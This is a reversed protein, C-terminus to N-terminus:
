ELADRAVSEAEATRGLKVLLRALDAYPWRRSPALAIASRLSQEAAHHDRREIEVLAKVELADLCDPETQLIDAALGAATELRGQKLAERAASIRQETRDSIMHSLRCAVAGGCYSRCGTRCHDPNRRPRDGLRTHGFRGHWVC